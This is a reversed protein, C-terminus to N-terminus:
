VNRTVGLRHLSNKNVFFFFVLHLHKRSHSKTHRLHYWRANYEYMECDSHNICKFPDLYLNVYNKIHCCGKSYILRLHRNFRKNSVACVFSINQLIIYQSNCNIITFRHMYWLPEAIFTWLFQVTKEPWETIKCKERFKCCFRQPLWLIGM